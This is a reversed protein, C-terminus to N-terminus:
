GTVMGLGGLAILVRKHSHRSPATPQVLHQTMGAASDGVEYLWPHPLHACWSLSRAFADLGHRLM